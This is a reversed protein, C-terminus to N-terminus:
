EERENERQELKREQDNKKERQIFTDDIKILMKRMLLVMLLMIFHDSHAKVATYVSSNRTLTM